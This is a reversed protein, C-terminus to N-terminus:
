PHESESQVAAARHRRILHGVQHLGIEIAGAAIAAQRKARCIDFHPLAHDRQFWERKLGLREAFALLEAETDALLHCMVMGRYRYAARDVFVTM